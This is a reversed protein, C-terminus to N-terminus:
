RNDSKVAVVRTLNPDLYFTQRYEKPAHQSGELTYTVSLMMLTSTNQPREGYRIGSKFIGNKGASQRMRVIAEDTVYLASDLSGVESISPVVTTNQEIFDSVLQKATHQKGCGLILLASLCAFVFIKRNTKM